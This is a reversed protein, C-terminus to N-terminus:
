GPVTQLEFVPHDAAEHLAAQFRPVLDTQLKDLAADLVPAVKKYAEEFAPSVKDIADDLHPQVKDMTDAALGVERYGTSEAGYVRARARAAPLQSEIRPYDPHLGELVM